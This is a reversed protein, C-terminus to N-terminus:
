RLGVKDNGEMVLVRGWRRRAESDQKTDKKIM